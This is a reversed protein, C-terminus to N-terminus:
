GLDQLGRSIKYLLHKKVFSEREYVTHDVASDSQVFASPGSVPRTAIVVRASHSNRVRASSSYPNPLFYIKM